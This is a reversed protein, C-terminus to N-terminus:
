FGALELFTAAVTWVHLNSPLGVGDVHLKAARQHNDPIEGPRSHGLDATQDDEHWCTCVPGRLTSREVLPPHHANGDKELTHTRARTHTDMCEYKCRPQAFQSSELWDSQPRLIMISLSVLLRLRGQLSRQREVQGKHLHVHEARVCKCANAVAHLM